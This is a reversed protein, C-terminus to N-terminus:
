SGSLRGPAVSDNTRDARAITETRHAARAAQRRRNCGNGHSSYVINQRTIITLYREKDVINTAKGKGMNLQLVTNNMTAPAIIALAVDVQEPRILINSDIEMLLWDPRESPSWNRHGSNELEEQLTEVKDHYLANHIRMLRQLKTILIGHAVSSEQVFDGFKCPSSSRLQELLTISTVCPWLQGLDLWSFRDDNNSLTEHVQSLHTAIMVRLNQICKANATTDPTAHLVRTQNSTKELADLSTELDLGYQQRLPNSVQSFTSLIQRLEVTEKVPMRARTNETTGTSLTTTSPPLLHGAQRELPVVLSTSLLDRLTPPVISDHAKRYFPGQARKWAQPYSMDGEGEHHRLVHEVHMLYESLSLNSHLREWEPVIREMALGVDIVDSDFGNLTVQEHPWQELIVQALRKGETEYAKRHEAEAKTQMRQRKEPFDVLIVRIMSEVSPRENLKFHNLSPCAPPTSNRLTPLSAFAALIKITDLDTTPNLSILSLRFMLSYPEDLNSHRCINVLSGWQEDVNKEVLDSLSAVEAQHMGHFGGILQWGQLISSLERITHIRFPKTRFLNAIHYVKRSQILNDQQGRSKYMRDTAAARNMHGVSREYIRRQALGRKRLHYPIYARTDADEAANRAFVRLCDSKDLIKQVLEEYADHQVTMTLRSNWSVTQLTRKHQPYYERKPSLDGITKLIIIAASGLPEWPQCQGSQLMHLAEETGTRGTLPDPIVFSTYAHFQAKAYLLRPEPPCSLRGLVDDIRFKAYETGGSARIAVHMGHRTSSITGCPAIVSRRKSNAVSRLVIKSEFGCLTGADQDPDIEENLERCQLFGKQNVFFSLELHRLEVSLKGRSNVPQFATIKSPDEFQRFIDAIQKFPYSNPDILLTRNSRHAQRKILDIRWDNMRTKWLVPRRRIELVRTNLNLWHACDSILGDPLDFTGPGVFHHSQVYELLENRSWARIIVRGNRYGFHIEHNSIWSALVYSMDYDASPFTLLHQNGFLQRVEDSERFERPLRGLPKGDVLLHGEIFNYHVIQTNAPSM